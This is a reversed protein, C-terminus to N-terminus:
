AKEQTMTRLQELLKREDNSLERPVIIKARAMLDGHGGGLKHIGRGSLRFVQNSQTGAPIKISIPGTLTEITAEGGLIADLYPVNVDVELVDGKVRFKDHPKWKVKIYLDGCKGNVGKAGKGPVRLQKGDTIGAPFNVEASKTTAVTAIGGDRTQVADATQYSLSRRTGTNVEELTLSVEIDVRRPQATQLDDFNMRMGGGSGFFQEFISGFGDGFPHEGAESFGGSGGGHRMHEWQSGYQDYLRRKEPDSLVEYAESIEKFRTEADKDNPNVDPHHRRALKRYSAKIDKIDANRGVELIAYYDRKM